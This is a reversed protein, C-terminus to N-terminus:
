LISVKGEFTITPREDYFYYNPVMRYKWYSFNTSDPNDPGVFVFHIDAQVLDGRFNGDSRSFTPYAACRIENSDDRLDIRPSAMFAKGDFENQKALYKFLNETTWENFDKFEWRSNDGDWALSLRIEPLSGGGGGGNASIRGDGDISIGDGIKVGGLTTESAKPLTYSGGGGEGGGCSRNWNVTVDSANGALRYYSGNAVDTVMRTTDAAVAFLDSFEIGDASIQLTYGENSPSISFNDSLVQFPQEGSIM